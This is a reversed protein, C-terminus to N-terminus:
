RLTRCLLEIPACHECVWLLNGGGWTVQEGSVFQNGCFCRNWRPVRTLGPMKIGQPPDFLPCPTLPAEFPSGVYKKEGIRPDSEYLRPAFGELIDDTFVRIFQYISNMPSHVLEHDQLHRQLAVVKPVVRIRRGRWERFYEESTAYFAWQQSMTAPSPDVEMEFTVPIGSGYEGWLSICIRDFTDKQFSESQLATAATARSVM